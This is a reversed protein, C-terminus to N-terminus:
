LIDGMVNLLRENDEPGRVAIRYWGKSLGHFNSCDRILIGKDALKEHLHTDQCHFLIYNAEGEFVRCGLKTLGDALHARQIEIIGRTLEVYEREGLAAIGAEMAPVSVAWSQGAAVIAESVASNGTVAYGLRIGPMAYMKTFSRVIIIKSYEGLYRIFSIENGDPLFDLFCEDVIIYAGVDRCHEVLIRATDADISRGGPNGPNSIFVMGTGPLIHDCIDARISFCAAEDSFFRVIDCEAQVLAREYEGFSPEAILVRCGESLAAIRYIIDAAGNGCVIWETPIGHHDSLAARLRRCFPDPYDESDTVAAELAKRVGEPMGLPNISASFDLPKKGYKETFSVIDGGHQYINM